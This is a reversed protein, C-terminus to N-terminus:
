IKNLTMALLAARVYVGNEVQEFYKARKDNDVDTSIESVRPLPHMIIMDKKAQKLLNRDLIFSSKLKEYETQNDFRERQVRTMYLVDVKDIVKEINDTEIYNSKRRRLIDLYEKPIKLEGPSVLYFESKYNSLLKLLSHITRGYKLDGVMAIKLGDIERKTKKITYFDLLAQTPHEGPGDGANIVPISASSAAIKASGKDPHRIIIIDCYREITKITDELSEGKAMSSFNVGTTSIINGGIKQMATEFSFRTRTSPEFFLSAMIKGKLIDLSGKEQIKKEMFFSVEFIKELTKKNIQDISILDKGLM